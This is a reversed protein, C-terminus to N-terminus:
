IPLSLRTVPEDYTAAWVFLSDVTWRIPEGTEAGELRDADGGRAITVHPVYEDGELGEIPEFAACLREHLEVLAPSEIRLYAVPGPGSTPTRFLEVEATRAEFPGTEDLARRLRREIVRPEGEGLRKLVLTHRDRPTAEVCEAALGRALRSVDAPVPVNCSYM